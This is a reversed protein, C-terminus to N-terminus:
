GDILMDIWRDVYRDVIQKDITLRDIYRTNLRFNTFHKNSFTLEERFRRSAYIIQLLVFGLVEFEHLSGLNRISLSSPKFLM